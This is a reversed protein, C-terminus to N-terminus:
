PGSVSPIPLPVDLAAKFVSLLSATLGHGLDSRCSDLVCVGTPSRNSAHLWGVPDLIHPLVWLQFVVFSLSRIVFRLCNQEVPLALEAYV